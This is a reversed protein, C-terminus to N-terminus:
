HALQTLMRVITLLIGLAPLRRRPIPLPNSARGGARVVPLDVQNNLCPHIGVLRPVAIPPLNALNLLAQVAIPLHVIHLPQVATVEEQRLLGVAAQRVLTHRLRVAQPMSNAMALGTVFNSTLNSSRVIVSVYQAFSHAAFSVLMVVPKTFHM